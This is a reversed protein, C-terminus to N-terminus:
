QPPSPNKREEKIINTPTPVYDTKLERERDKAVEDKGEEKSVKPASPTTTPIPPPSPHVPVIWLRNFNYASTAYSDGEDKQEKKDAARLKFGESSASLALIRNTESLALKVVNELKIATESISRSPPLSESSAFRHDFIIEDTLRFEPRRIPAVSRKQPAPSPPALHRRKVRIRTPHIMKGSAEGTSHVPTETQGAQQILFIAKTSANTLGSLSPSVEKKGTQPSELRHLQVAIREEELSVEPWDAFVSLHLWYDKLYQVIKQCTADSTVEPELDELEKEGEELNKLILGRAALIKRGLSAEESQIMELSAPSGNHLFLSQRCEERKLGDSLIRNQCSRFVIIRQLWKQKWKLVKIDTASIKELETRVYGWSKSQRFILACDQPPQSRALHPYELRGTFFSLLDSVVKNYLVRDDASLKSIADERNDRAASYGLSSLVFTLTSQAFNM